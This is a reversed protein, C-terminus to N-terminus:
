GAPTALHSISSTGRQIFTGAGLRNTLRLIAFAVILLFLVTMSAWFIDKAWQTLNKM